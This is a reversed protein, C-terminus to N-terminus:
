YFKRNIAFDDDGCFILNAKFNAKPKLTANFKKPGSEPRTLPWKTGGRGM